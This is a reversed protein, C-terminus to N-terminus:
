AIDLYAVYEDSFSSSSTWPLSVSDGAVSTDTFYWYGNTSNFWTILNIVTNEGSTTFSLYLGIGASADTFANHSWTGTNWDAEAQTVQQITGSPQEFSGWTTDQTLTVVMSGSSGASMQQAVNSYVFWYETGQVWTGDPSDLAPVLVTALTLENWSFTYVRYGNEGADLQRHPMRANPMPSTECRRSANGPHLFPLSAVGSPGSLVPEQEFSLASLLARTRSILEGYSVTLQHVGDERASRWQGMTSTMAWTFAGMREGGFRSSVSVQDKKCASIVRQAVGAGEPLSLGAAKARLQERVSQKRSLGVQSHCGDILITLDESAKKKDLVQRLMAIDIVGELSSTVDSPCLLLHGDLLEGHGSFTMLASAAGEQSLEDMLWGIGKVIEDHTAEGFVVSDGMPGVDEPSLRPTTLVRIREPSFGMNRCQCLWAQADNLAGAVNSRGTPDYTRYDHVGILLAYDKPKTM